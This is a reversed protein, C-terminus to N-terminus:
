FFFVNLFVTLRLFSCVPRQLTGDTQQRCCQANFRQPLTAVWACRALHLLDEPLARLEAGLVLAPLQVHRVDEEHLLLGGARVRM